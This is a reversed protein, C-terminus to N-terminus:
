RGGASLAAPGEVRGHVRRTWVRKGSQLDVCIVLHAHTLTRVSSPEDAEGAPSSFFALHVACASWGDARRLSKVHLAPTRVAIDQHVINRASVVLNPLGGPLRVLIKRRPPECGRMQPPLEELGARKEVRIRQNGGGTQCVRCAGDSRGNDYGREGGGKGVSGDMRAHPCRPSSAPSSDPSLEPSTQPTPDLYIASAQQQQEEEREEQEQGQQVEQGEEQCGRSRSGAAPLLSPVSVLSDRVHSCERAVPSAHARRRVELVLVLDDEAAGWMRAMAPEAWRMERGGWGTGGRWWEIMGLAEGQM